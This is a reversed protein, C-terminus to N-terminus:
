PAGERVDVRARFKHGQPVALGPFVAGLPVFIEVNTGTPPAVTSWFGPPLLLGTM